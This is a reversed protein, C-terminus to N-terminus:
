REVGGGEWVERGSRSRVHATAARVVSGSRVGPPFPHVTGQAVVLSTVVVCREGKWDPAKGHGITFLCLLEERYAGGGHACAATVHVHESAPGQVGVIRTEGV